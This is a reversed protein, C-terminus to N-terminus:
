RPQNLRDAIRQNIMSFVSPGGRVTQIRQAMAQALKAWRARPDSQAPVPPQIAAPTAARFPAPNQSQVPPRPIPLSPM